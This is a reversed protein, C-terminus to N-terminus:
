SSSGHGPKALPLDLHAMPKAVHGWGQCMGALSRHRHIVSAVTEKILPLLTNGVHGLCTVIKTM